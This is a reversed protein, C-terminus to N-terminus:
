SCVCRQRMLVLMKELLSSTHFVVCDYSSMLAALIQQSGCYLVNKIFHAGMKSFCVHIKVLLEWKVSSGNERSCLFERFFRLPRWKRHKQPSNQVREALWHWKVSDGTKGHFFLLRNQGLVGMKGFEWKISFISYWPKGRLARAAAECWPM